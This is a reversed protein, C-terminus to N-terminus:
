RQRESRRKKHRKRILAQIAIAVLAGATDVGVDIAHGTRGPVFTQHWEDSAAYAIAIIAAAMWSIRWKRTWKLWTQVWFLSLIAYETVHGAKRVFFEAMDYPQEWTVLQGDYTFSWHPLLAQLTQETIYSALQPRLDQEAYTQASKAFIVAMWGIALMLWLWRAASASQPRVENARNQAKM